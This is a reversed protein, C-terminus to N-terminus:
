EINALRKTLVVVELCHDVACESPLASTKRWRGSYRNCNTRLNRAGLDPAIDTRLYLISENFPEGSLPGSFRTDFPLLECRAQAQAILVKALLDLPKPLLDPLVNSDTPDRDVRLINEYRPRPMSKTQAFLINLHNVEGPKLMSGFILPMTRPTGFGMSAGVRDGPQAWEPDILTSSLRLCSPTGGCFEM